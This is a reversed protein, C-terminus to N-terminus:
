RAAEFILSWLVVGFIFGVFGAVTYFAEPRDTYFACSTGDQSCTWGTVTALM